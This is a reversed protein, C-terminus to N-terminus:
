VLSVKYENVQTKDPHEQPNGEDQGQGRKSPAAHVIETYDLGAAALAERWSGFHNKKTAVAALQPDVNLCVNRWSLDVGQAHLDKIQAIIKEQTWSKHRRINDYDLGALRIANAWTGFYRVAARLLSLNNGAVSSYNVNEGAEHRSVIELLVADRSWRRTTVATGTTSTSSTSSGRASQDEKSRKNFSELATVSGTDYWDTTVTVEIDDGRSVDAKLRQFLSPDTVSLQRVIRRVVGGRGVTSYIVSVTPPEGSAVGGVVVEATSRTTKYSQSM